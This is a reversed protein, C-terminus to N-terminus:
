VHARGIEVPEVSAAPEDAATMPEDAVPALPEDAATMPEDAVPALPEDAAMSSDATPPEPMKTSETM